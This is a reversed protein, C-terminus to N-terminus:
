KLRGFVRFSFTTCPKGPGSAKALNGESVDATKTNLLINGVSSFVLLPRFIHQPPRPFHQISPLYILHTPISNTNTHTLTFSYPISSLSPLTPIHTTSTQCLTPHQPYPYILTHISNTQTFHHLLAIFRGPFMFPSSLHTAATQLLIPPQLSSLHSLPLQM